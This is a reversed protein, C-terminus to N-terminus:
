EEEKEEGVSDKNDSEEDLGVDKKAQEQLERQKKLYEQLALEKIEDSIEGSEVAKQIQAKRRADIFVKMFSYVNWLFLILLPILIFITYNTRDEFFTFFKGVNNIKGLYKAVIESRLIHESVQSMEHNDGQCYIDGNEKIEVIRHTNLIITSGSSYKFTVIDGVQLNEKDSETLKKGIVLDGTEFNDKGEGKMSDSKVPLLSIGFIPDSALGNNKSSMISFISIAFLFVIIVIEPIILWKTSKKKENNGKKNVDKNMDQNTQSM